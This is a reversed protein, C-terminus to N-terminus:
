KDKDEDATRKKKIIRKDVFEGTAVDFAQASRSSLIMWIVGVAVAVGAIAGVLIGTISKKREAQQQESVSPDVWHDGIDACNTVSAGTVLIKADNTSGFLICDVKEFNDSGYAEAIDAYTFEATNNYENVNSPAVKAWVSGDANAMPTDPSSWSQFILEVPYGTTDVDEGDHVELVDYSVKIVSDDTMRTADFSTLDEPDEENYTFKVSQSWADSEIASTCDLQVDSEASVSLAQCGAIGAAVIAAAIKGYLNKKM